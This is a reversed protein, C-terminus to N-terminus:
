ASALVDSMKQSRSSRTALESRRRRRLATGVIGMGLIMSLWTAPEPVAAVPVPVVPIVDTPVPTPTSTFGGGGSSPPTGGAVPVFGGVGVGVGIPFGPAYGGVFPPTGTEGGPHFGEVIPIIPLDDPIVPIDGVFGGVPAYPPYGGGGVSPTNPVFVIREKLAHLSSDDRTGPSRGAIVSSPDASMGAVVSVGVGPISFGLSAATLTGIAIMRRPASSGRVIGILASATTQLKNFSMIM